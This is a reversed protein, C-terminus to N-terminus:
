PLNWCINYDYIQFHILIIPGFCVPPLFNSLSSTHRIGNTYKKQIVKVNNHTAMIRMGLGHVIPIDNLYPRVHIAPAILFNNKHIEM